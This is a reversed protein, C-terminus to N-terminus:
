TKAIMPPPTENQQLSTSLTQYFRWKAVIAPDERPPTWGHERWTQEVDTTKKYPKM